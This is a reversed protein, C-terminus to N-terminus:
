DKSRIEWQMQRGSLSPSGEFPTTHPAVPSHTLKWWRLVQGRAEWGLAPVPQVPLKSRRHLVCCLNPESQRKRTPSAHLRCFRLSASPVPCQSPGDSLEAQERRHRCLCKQPSPKQEYPLINWDEQFNSVQSHRTHRFEARATTITESTESGSPLHTNFLHLTLSLPPFLNHTLTILRHSTHRETVITVTMENPCCQRTCGTEGLGACQFM